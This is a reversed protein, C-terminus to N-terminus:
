QLKASPHVTVTHPSLEEAPIRQGSGVVAKNRMKRRQRLTEQVEAAEGESVTGKSQLEERLLHEEDTIPVQLLKTAHRPRDPQLSM